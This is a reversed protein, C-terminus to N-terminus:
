VRCGGRLGCWSGFQRTAYGGIKVFQIVQTYKMLQSNHVIITLAFIFGNIM